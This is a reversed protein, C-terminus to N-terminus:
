TLIARFIDRPNIDGRVKKVDLLVAPIGSVSQDSYDVSDVTFEKQNGNRFVVDNLNYKDKLEQVNSVDLDRLYFFVRNLDSQYMAIPVEISEKIAGKTYLRRRGDDDGGYDQIHNHFWCMGDVDSNGATTDRTFGKCSPQNNCHDICYQLTNRFGWSGESINYDQNITSYEYIGKHSPQFTVQIKRGEPIDPRTYGEVGKIYFYTNNPDFDGNQNLTVLPVTHTNALKMKMNSNFYLTIENTNRNVFNVVDEDRGSETNGIHDSQHYSHFNDGHVINYHPNFRKGDIFFVEVAKDNHKSKGISSSSHKTNDYTYSDPPTNGLYFSKLRTVMNLTIKEGVEDIDECLGIVM